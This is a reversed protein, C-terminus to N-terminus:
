HTQEQFHKKAKEELGTCQVISKLEKTIYAEVAVATSNKVWEGAKHKSNEGTSLFVFGPSKM